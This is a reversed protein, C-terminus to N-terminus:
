HKVNWIELCPVGTNFIVRLIYYLLLCCALFDVYLEYTKVNLMMVMFLFLIAIAGIYIIILVYGLFEMNLYLLIGSIDLIYSYLFFDVCNSKETCFYKDSLLSFYFCCSFVFYSM